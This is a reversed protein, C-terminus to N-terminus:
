WTQEGRGGEVLVCWCMDERGGERRDDDVLDAGGQVLAVSVEGRAEQGRERGQHQLARRGPLLVLPLPATLHPISPHTPHTSPHISSCPAPRGAAIVGVSCARGGGVRGCWGGDGVWGM